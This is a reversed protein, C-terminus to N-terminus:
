ECKKLVYAEVIKETQKSQNLIAIITELYNFYSEKTYKTKSDWFPLPTESLHKYIEPFDTNLKQTVEVIKLGLIEEYKKM